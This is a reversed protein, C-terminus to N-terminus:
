GTPTQDAVRESEEVEPDPREIHNVVADIVLPDLGEGGDHVYAILQALMRPEWFDHLHGAISTAADIKPQTKFFSAIQNCMHIMKEPSM